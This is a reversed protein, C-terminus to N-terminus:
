VRTNSTAVFCHSQRSRRFNSNIQFDHQFKAKQESLYSKIELDEHIPPGVMYLGGNTVIINIDPMTFIIIKLQGWRCFLPCSQIKECWNQKQPHLTMDTMRLPKGYTKELQLVLEFTQEKKPQFFTRSNINTYSLNSITHSFHM